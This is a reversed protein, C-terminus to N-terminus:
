RGTSLSSDFRSSSPQKQSSTFKDRGKYVEASVRYETYLKDAETFHRSQAEGLHGSEMREEWQRQIRNLLIGGTSALQFEWNSNEFEALDMIARQIENTERWRYTGAMLARWVWVLHTRKVYGNTISNLDLYLLQCLSYWENLSPRVLNIGTGMAKRLRWLVFSLDEGITAVAGRIIMESRYQHEGIFIMDKILM